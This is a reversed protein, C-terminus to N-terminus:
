QSLTIRKPKGHETQHQIEGKAMTSALNFLKELEEMTKLRIKQTDTKVEEKLQTLRKKIM